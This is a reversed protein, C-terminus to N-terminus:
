YGVISKWFDVDFASKLRKFKDGGAIFTKKAADLGYHEPMGRRHRYCGQEITNTVRVRAEGPSYNFRAKEYDDGFNPFPPDGVIVTNVYGADVGVWFQWASVIAGTNNDKFKIWEEYAEDTSMGDVPVFVPRKTMQYFWEGWDEAKRKSPWHVMTIWDDPTKNIAVSLIEAHKRRTAMDTSATIKPCDLDYVPRDQPLYPNPMEIFEFEDPDLGLSKIDHYQITGSMLIIRPAKDFLPKFHFRATLPKILISEGDAKVYFEYPVIELCGLTTDVEDIKRKWWKYYRLDGGKAPHVPPNGKLSHLLGELWERAEDVAVPGPKDIEIPSCYQMLRKYSFNARFESWNVVADHLLHCEDYVIIEPDFGKVFDNSNVIPRDSLFKSRNTVGAVSNVFTWRAKPYECNAACVNKMDHPCECLDATLEKNDAFELFDYQQGIRECKYNGKGFITTFGYPEVYQWQLNKDAVVSLVRYGNVVMNAAIATKGIGQKLKLFVYRKQSNIAREYSEFQYKRNLPHPLIM